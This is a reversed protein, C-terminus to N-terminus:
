HIFPFYVYENFRQNFHWYLFFYNAAGHTKFPSTASVSTFDIISMLTTTAAILFGLIVGIWDNVIRRKKTNKDVISKM